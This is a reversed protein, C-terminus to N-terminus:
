RAATRTFSPDVLGTVKLLLRERGKSDVISISGNNIVGGPANPKIEVKMDWGNFKPNKELNATLVEAPKVTGIRLSESDKLARAFIKVFRPKHTDATVDKFDITSGPPETTLDGVVEGTVAVHVQKTGAGTKLSVAVVDDLSGVPNRGTNEIVIRQGSKAGASKLEEPTMPSAKATVGNTATEIKEVELKDRILSTITVSATKIQGEDVWGLPIKDSSVVIEQHIDLNIRFPIEWKRPDNTRVPVTVNQKGLKEKTNWRAVVYVTEGPNLKYDARQHELDPAKESPSPERDSLYMDTCQCTPKMPTLVLPVTKSGNRIKFVDQGAQQPGLNAHSVEQAGVVEAVPQKEPDVPVTEPQTATPTTSPSLVMLATSGAAVVVVGVIVTLWFKM